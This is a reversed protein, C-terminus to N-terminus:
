QASLYLFVTSHTRENIVMLVILSIIILYDYSFSIKTTMCSFIITCLISDLFYGLSLPTAFIRAERVCRRSTNKREICLYLVTTMYIICRRFLFFFSPFPAM